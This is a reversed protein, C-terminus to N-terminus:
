CITLDELYEKNEKLCDVVEENMLIVKVKFIEKNDEIRSVLMKDKLKELKKFNETKITFYIKAWLNEKSLIQETQM